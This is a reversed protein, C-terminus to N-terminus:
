SNVLFTCHWATNTANIVVAFNCWAFLASMIRALLAGYVYGGMADNWLMAVLTPLIFGSGLVLPVLKRILLAVHTM